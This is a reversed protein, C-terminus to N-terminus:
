LCIKAIGDSPLFSFLVWMDVVGIYVHVHLYICVPVTQILIKAM